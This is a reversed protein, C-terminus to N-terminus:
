YLLHRMTLLYRLSQITFVFCFLFFTLPKWNKIFYPEADKKPILKVIGRRQTISLKRTEFFFNLANILTAKIDNWFVKYFGAPLGDTGPTNQSEM